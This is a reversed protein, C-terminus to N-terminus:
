LSVKIKIKQSTLENTGIDNANITTPMVKFIQYKHTSILATSTHKTEESDDEANKKDEIAIFDSVIKELEDMTWLSM